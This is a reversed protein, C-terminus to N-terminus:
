INRVGIIRDFNFVAIIVESDINMIEVFRDERINFYADEFVVENTNINDEIIVAVNM